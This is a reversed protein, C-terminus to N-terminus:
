QIPCGAFEQDTPNADLVLKLECTEGEFCDLHKPQKFARNPSPLLRYKGADVLGLDFHGEVDTTVTKYPVFDNKGGLKRLQVRSLEFTAGSKDKLEGLVHQKVKLELNAKVKEVSCPVEWPQAITQPYAAPALVLIAVLTKSIDTRKPM